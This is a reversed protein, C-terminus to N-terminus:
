TATARFSSAWGPTAPMSSLMLQGLTPLPPRWNASSAEAAASTVRATRRAVSRGSSTLSDGAADSTRAMAVAMRAETVTDMAASALPINLRVRRTLQTGTNVESPIIDSQNPQLLVDDFTLGLNVFPAPVGAGNLEDQM